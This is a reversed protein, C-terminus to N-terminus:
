DEGEFAKYGDYDGFMFADSKAAEIYAQYSDKVESPLSTLPEIEDMERWIEEFNSDQSRTKKSM